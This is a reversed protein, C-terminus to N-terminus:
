TRRRRNKRAWIMKDRRRALRSLMGEVPKESDHVMESEEDGNETPSSTFTGDATLGDEKLISFGEAIISIRSGSDEILIDGYYDIAKSNISESLATYGPVDIMLAPSDMGSPNGLLIMLLQLEDKTLSDVFGNEATKDEGLQKKKDPEPEIAKEVSPIEKENKNTSSIEASQEVWSSGIGSAEEESLEQLEDPSLLKEQNKRLTERISAFQHFDLTLDDLTLEEISKTDNVSSERIDSTENVRKIFYFEKYDYPTNRFCEKFHKIMEGNATTFFIQTGNDALAKFIDLVNLVQIDDMTALPEDLLLFRPADDAAEYLALMVALSLATRQGTSMEYTRVLENNIGRVAYIGNEDVNLDTFEGSHHMMTFYRRIQEINGKIHSEVYSSLTKMKHFAEIAETCRNLKPIVQRIEQETQHLINQESEIEGQDKIRHIESTVKDYLEQFKKTWALIETEALIHFVKNINEVSVALKRYEEIRLSQVEQQDVEIQTRLSAIENNLKTIQTATGEIQLDLEGIKQDQNRVIQNMIDEFSYKSNQMTEKQYTLYFPDSETFEGAEQITKESYGQESLWELEDAITEVEKQKAEKSNVYDRISQYDGDHEDIFPVSRALGHITEICRRKFSDIDLKTQIDGLEGRIDSLRKELEPINGAVRVVHDVAYLLQDQNDFRSGCFPCKSGAILKKGTQKFQLLHEQQFSLFQKQREYEAQLELLTQTKSAQETKVKNLEWQGMPSYDDEFSLFILLDKKSEIRRICALDQKLDLLRRQLSQVRSVAEKNRIVGKVINWTDLSMLVNRKYQELKDRESELSQKKQTFLQSKQLDQQIGHRASEIQENINHLRKDQLDPALVADGWTHCGNINSSINSLVSVHQSVVDISSLIAEDRGLQDKKPLTDPNRFGLLTLLGNIDGEYVEYNKQSM